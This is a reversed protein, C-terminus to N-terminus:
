IGWTHLNGQIKGAETNMLSREVRYVYGAHCQGCTEQAIWLSGPDPYFNKPGITM